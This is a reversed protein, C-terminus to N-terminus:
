SGGPVLALMRLPSGSAGRIRLPPVVLCFRHAKATGLEELNANEVLYVGHDAILFMHVPFLESGHVAPRVEYTLTDTGTLRVGHAVLWRAADVGPGPSKDGLLRANDKGFYQGWGTRILVSDGQQVSVGHTRAADELHQATIEFGPPLPDPGGAAMVRAVDLLIGRSLLLDVPFADIGLDNGIGDPRSTAAVADVGGHLKLNRGIHGIADITAAGHQGSFFLIESTWSLQSGPASGFVEYTQRHTANLAFAYPPNLSLLPSRPEWTFNLDFVRAARVGSIFAEVNVAEAASTSPATVTSAAAVTTAAGAIFTRRSVDTM